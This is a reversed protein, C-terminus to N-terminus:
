DDSDEGMCDHEEEQEDHLRDKEKQKREEEEYAANGKRSKKQAIKRQLKASPYARIRVKSL